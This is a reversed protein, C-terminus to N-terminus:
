GGADYLGTEGDVYFRFLLFGDLEPSNQVTYFVGDMYILLLCTVTEGNAVFRIDSCLKGDKLEIPKFTIM